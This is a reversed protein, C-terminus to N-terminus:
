KNGGKQILWTLLDRVDELELFLYAEGKTASYDIKSFAIAYEGKRIGAESCRRDLESAIAAILDMNEANEDHSTAYIYDRIKDQKGWEALLEATPTTTIDKMRDENKPSNKNRKSM